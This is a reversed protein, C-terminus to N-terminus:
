TNAMLELMANLSRPTPTGESRLGRPQHQVIGGDLKGAYISRHLQPDLTRTSQSSSRTPPCNSIQTAGKQLPDCTVTQFQSTAARIQKFVRGFNVKDVNKSLRHKVM